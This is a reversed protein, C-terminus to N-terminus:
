HCPGLVTGQPVGSKQIVPVESSTHNELIAWNKLKCLLCKHPVKDFAECFDLLVIALDVQKKNDLAKLINEILSLLQNESSYEPRFGHQHKNIVNSKTLHDMVFHFIIINHEM